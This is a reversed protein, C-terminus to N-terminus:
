ETKKNYETDEEPMQLTNHDKVYKKWYKKVLTEEKQADLKKNNKIKRTLRNRKQKEIISIYIIIEKTKM